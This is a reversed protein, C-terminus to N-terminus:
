VTVPCRAAFQKSTPVTLNANAIHVFDLSVWTEDDFNSNKRLFRYGHGYLTAKLDEKPREVTIVSFKYKEWPFGNMVLSEAGEVDLSFYDIVHPANLEDLIEGLAKTQLKVQVAGGADHNDFKDSVIGGFAGKYTFNVLQNSPSGVAALVTTCRRKALGPTYFPNAEMCIGDWGFDRELMLTNSLDAADHAALDVFFGGRKCNLIAQVLKDQGVQSHSQGPSGLVHDPALPVLIQAWGRPPVKVKTNNTRVQLLIQAAVPMSIFAAVLVFYVMM